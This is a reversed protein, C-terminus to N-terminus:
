PMRAEIVGCGVRTGADGGPDTELDDRGEHIMVAHEAVNYEATPFPSIAVVMDATGDAEAEFNGLDGLHKDDLDETPAGHDMTELPDWHGGAAGGPTGDEGPGCAANEHVHIAHPGPRLGSLSIAVMLGGDSERFSVTGQASAGPASTPRVVAAAYASDDDDFVDAVTGFVAGAADEVADAAGRAVDVTADAADEAGEAARDTAREASQCASLGLLAVAFLSLSRM